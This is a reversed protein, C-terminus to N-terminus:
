IFSYHLLINCVNKVRQRASWTELNFYFYLFYFCLFIVLYSIIMDFCM